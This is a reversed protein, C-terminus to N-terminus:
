YVELHISSSCSIIGPPVDHQSASPAVSPEFSKTSNKAETIPPMPPPTVSIQLREWLEACNTKWFGVKTQERDYM